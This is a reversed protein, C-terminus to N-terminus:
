RAAETDSSFKYVGSYYATWIREDDEQSKKVADRIQVEDEIALQQVPVPKDPVIGCCLLLCFCLLKMKWTIKKM